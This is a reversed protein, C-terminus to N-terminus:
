SRSPHEEGGSEEGEGWQESECCWDRGSVLSAGQGLSVSRGVVLSSESSASPVLSDQGRGDGYSVLVSLALLWGDSKITASLEAWNPEPYGPGFQPRDIVMEALPLCTWAVM